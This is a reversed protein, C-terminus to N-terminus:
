QKVGYRVMAIIGLVIMALGIAHLRDEYEHYYSGFAQIEDRLFARVAEVRQKGDVLQVPGVNKRTSMWGVCNFYITRSSIGGRLIYEVYREQKQRDWVHARQFDPDLGLGYGKEFQALQDELYTWGVNVQYSGSRTFPPIDRFKTIKM